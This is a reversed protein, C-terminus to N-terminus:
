SRASRPAATFFIFNFPLKLLETVEERGGLVASVARPDFYRPILDMLLASTAGLQESVKLICTNGAALAALTPRILLTLPGNFPGTILAVGYPDRYVFGKHGIEALFKPSAGRGTGDLDDQTPLGHRNVLSKVAALAQKDFSAIRRAFTTVFADFDADPIARNILGYREARAASLDDSGLLIELARARGLLPPLREVAGGGPVVGVAVEPQCFFARELSAFRLDCALV